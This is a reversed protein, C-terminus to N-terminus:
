RISHSVQVFITGVLQNEKLHKLVHLAEILKALAKNHTYLMSTSQNFMQM